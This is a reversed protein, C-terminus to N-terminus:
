IGAGAAPEEAATEEAVPEEAVPEEAAPESGAVVDTMDQEGGKWSRETSDCYGDRFRM